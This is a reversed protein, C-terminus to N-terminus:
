EYVYVRHENILEVKEMLWARKIHYYWDQYAEENADKITFSAILVKLRQILGTKSSATFFSHFSSENDIM